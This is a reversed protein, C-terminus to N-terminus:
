PHSRKLNMFENIREKLMDVGVARWLGHVCGKYNEQATVM